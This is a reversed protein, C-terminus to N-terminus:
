SASRKFSPAPIGEIMINVCAPLKLRRAAQAQEIADKMDDAHEVFAGTGGFAETVRDYRVPLLECGILREPGYSRLQIQYEANWRADNGVVAVFPLGYRVATDMEAAHFGFTGDGMVAVVPSDPHAVRAALAFPLAAGIAGAVGNIVRNPARLCAQAWQGFEGGDAVFVADPHSDLLAQFPALAQVPHVRKEFSSSATRWQEPRWAIARQVDRAWREDFRHVNRCATALMELAPFSDAVATGILREGVARRTRAIEQPEPDIQLFTCGPAFAPARGFALTFDLRKGLLMVRDAQALVEAFAGLSPDNIGRPSEMGIVPVGLAAALTDTRKRGARTMCAPGTLILPRSADALSSVLRRLTTDDLMQRMPLFSEANVEDPMHASGELVDTPLSLHVPGPRGSQAVRMAHVVEDVLTHPHQATAAMKVLPAAVDAQRMEQFAGMGLQDRPSHGSLLLVPSEAMQATYLASVANAHGPGGTVLAVGVQGTLRAYADAMHVAAAEHRTHFLAIGAGICADFVPMIHNGSLTFIHKVGAKSLAKVLADAGRCAISM